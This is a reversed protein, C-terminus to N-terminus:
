FRQYSYNCLREAKRLGQEILCRKPLFKGLSPPGRAPPHMECCARFQLRCCGDILDAARGSTRDVYQHFKSCCSTHSKPAHQLHAVAAIRPIVATDQLLMDALGWSRAGHRRGHGSGTLRCQGQWIGSTSLCSKSQGAKNLALLCAHCM